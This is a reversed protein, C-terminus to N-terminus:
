RPQQILEIRNGAPDRAFGIMMGSNGFPRPDGDMTGGAAKVAAATAAADTVNLIIHPVADALADSDRHMIVIEAAANAKAADVSSGFNLMIEITGPFELRNVEKLGFASEYFTALAAVDEAGIRAANLSVDAQAFGALTLATGAGLLWRAKKMKTNRINFVHQCRRHYRPADTPDDNAARAPTTM